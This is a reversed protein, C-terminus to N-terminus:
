SRGPIIVKNSLSDHFKESKLSNVQDAPIKFNSEAGKVYVLNWEPFVQLVDRLTNFPLTIESVFFMTLAGGYYANVLVFFMWLSTQIIHNARMNDWRNLFLYPVFLTVLGSISFIGIFKWVDDTFPRIFLGADVEPFKPVMCLIQKDLSFPVFDLFYRDKRWTWGSLSMQYRGMVVDGMNGKWTGSRNFPGDIPFMGWDNDIDRYIDWTFNYGKAWIDMMDAIIGYYKCNRGMADCDEIGMFPKWQLSAGVINYGNMNFDEVAQGLDNFAIQNMIFQSSNYLTMITYWEFNSTFSNTLLYFFSNQAFYKAAM